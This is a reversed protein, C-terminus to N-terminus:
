LIFYIVLELSVIFASIFVTKYLDRSILHADYAAIPAFRPQNQTPQLSLKARREVTKLKQSKLKRKKSMIANYYLCKAHSVLQDKQPFNVTM